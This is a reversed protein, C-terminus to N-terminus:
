EGDKIQIKVPVAKLANSYDAGLQAVVERAFKRPNPDQVTLMPRFTRVTSWVVPGDQGVTIEARIRGCAATDCRFRLVGQGPSSYSLREDTQIAMRAYEGLEPPVDERGVSFERPEFAHVDFTQLDGLSPGKETAAAETEAPAAATSEPQIEVPMAQRPETPEPKAANEEAWGGTVGLTSAGALLGAALMLFMLRSRM